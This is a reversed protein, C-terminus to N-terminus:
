QQKGYLRFEWCLVSYCVTDGNVKFLFEIKSDLNHGSFRAMAEIFEALSVTGSGDADFVSFIRKVFFEDTCPVIKRFQDSFFSYLEHIVTITLSWSQLNTNRTGL